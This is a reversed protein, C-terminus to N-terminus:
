SVYYDIQEKMMGPQKKGKDKKAVSDVKSNSKKGKVTKAISFNVFSLVIITFCALFILGNFKRKM